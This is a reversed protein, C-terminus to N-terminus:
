ETKLPRFSAIIQDVDDSITKLTKKSFTSTFIYGKGEIILTIQRQYLAQEDSPSYRFVFEYAKVGSPLAFEHENILEYGPLAEKFSGFQQKAYDALEIKKDVAPDIVLVLNHQVGSDFPGEFTHVTTEKWPSPFSLSFLNNTPM